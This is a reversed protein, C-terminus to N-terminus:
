YCVKNTIESQEAGLTLSEAYIEITGWLITKAISFWYDVFSELWQIAAEGTQLRFSTLELFSINVWSHQFCLYLSKIGNSQLPVYMPEHLRLRIFPLRQEFTQCNTRKHSQPNLIYWEENTSNKESFNLRQYSSLKSNRFLAVYFKCYEQATSNATKLHCMLSFLWLM